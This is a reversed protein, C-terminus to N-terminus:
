VSQQKLNVYKYLSGVTAFLEASIDEDEIQINFQEELEHIVGMVAMSDLEPLSGLLPTELTLTIRSPDLQLCHYLLNFLQQEVL